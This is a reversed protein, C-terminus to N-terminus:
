MAGTGTRRFFSLWALCLFVLVFARDVAAAEEEDDEDTAKSEEPELVTNTLDISIEVPNVTGGFGELTGAELTILPASFSGDFDVNCDPLM